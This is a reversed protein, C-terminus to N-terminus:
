QLRDTTYTLVLSYTGAHRASVDLDVDIPPAAPRAITDDAEPEPAPTAEPEPPRCDATLEESCEPMAPDVVPTVVKPEIVHMSRLEVGGRDVVILDAAGAAVKVHITTPTAPVTIDVRQRVLAIDRYLTIDNTAELPAAHHVRGGCAALLVLLAKM